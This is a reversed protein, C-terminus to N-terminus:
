AARDGYKGLGERFFICVCVIWIAVCRHIGLFVQQCYIHEFQGGIRFWVHRPSRPPLTSNPLSHPPLTPPYMYSPCIPRVVVVGDLCRNARPLNGETVGLGAGRAGPFRRLLPARSLLFLLGLGAYLGNAPWRTGPGRSTTRPPMPRGSGSGIQPPGVGQLWRATRPEHVLGWSVGSGSYNLALSCCGESFKSQHEFDKWIGSPLRVVSELTATNSQRHLHSIKVCQLGRKM